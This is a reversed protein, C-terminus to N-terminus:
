KFGKDCVPCTYKESPQQWAHRPCYIWQGVKFDDSM